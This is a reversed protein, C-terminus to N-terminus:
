LLHKNNNISLSHLSPPLLLSSIRSHRLTSYIDQPAIIHSCSHMPSSIFRLLTSSYKGTTIYRNELYFNFDENQSDHATCVSAKAGGDAVKVAEMDGHHDTEAGFPVEEVRHGRQKCPAPPRRMGHGDDRDRARGEIGPHVLERRM